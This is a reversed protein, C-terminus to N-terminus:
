AFIKPGSVLGKKGVMKAARDLDVPQPGKILWDLQRLFRKFM